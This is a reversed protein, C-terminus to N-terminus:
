FKMFDLILFFEFIEYFRFNFFFELIEYFRFNFFFELIEYFRVNQWNKPSGFDDMYLGGLLVRNILFFYSNKFKM